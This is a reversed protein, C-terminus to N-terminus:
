LAFIEGWGKVLSAPQRTSGALMPDRGFVPVRSFGYRYQAM